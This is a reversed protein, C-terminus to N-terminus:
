AGFLSPWLIPLFSNGLVLAAVGIFLWALVTGALLWRGFQKLDRLLVFFLICTNYIALISAFSLIILDPVPYTPLWALNPEITKSLDYEILPLAIFLVTINAILFLLNKIRNKTM